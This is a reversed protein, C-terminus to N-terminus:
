RGQICTSSFIHTKATEGVSIIKPGVQLLLLVTVFGVNGKQSKEKVTKAHNQYIFTYQVYITIIEM